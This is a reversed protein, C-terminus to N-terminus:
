LKIFKEKLSETRIWYIGCPLRSVDVKRGEGRMVKRGAVDFIEYREKMKLDIENKLSTAMKAMKEVLKASRRRTQEKTVMADVTSLQGGSATIASAM